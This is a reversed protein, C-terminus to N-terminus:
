RMRERGWASLRVPCLLFPRKWTGNICILTLFTKIVKKAEKRELVAM